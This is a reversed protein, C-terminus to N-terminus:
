IETEKTVTQSYQHYHIIARKSAFVAPASCVMSRLHPVDSPQLVTTLRVDPWAAKPELRKDRRAM